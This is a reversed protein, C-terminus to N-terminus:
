GKALVPVAGGINQRIQGPAESQGTNDRKTVCAWAFVMRPGLLWPISDTM